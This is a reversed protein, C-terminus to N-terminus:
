SKTSFSPPKCQFILILNLGGYLRVDLFFKLADFQLLCYDMIISVFKMEKRYNRNIPPTGKKKKKKSWSYM